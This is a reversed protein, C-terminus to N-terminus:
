ELCTKWLRERGECGDDIFGTLYSNDRGLQDGDQLNSSGLHGAAVVVEVVDAVAVKVDAATRREALGAEVAVAVDAATSPGSEAAALVGWSIRCIWYPQRVQDQAHLM